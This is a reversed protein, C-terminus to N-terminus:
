TEATEPDHEEALTATTALTKVVESASVSVAVFVQEPDADATDTYL